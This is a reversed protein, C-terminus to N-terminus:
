GKSERVTNSEFVRHCAVMHGSGAFTECLEPKIARCESRAVPCRMHFPCGEPINIPSPIDGQLLIRNRKAGPDPIPIASFLAKTYPHLPNRYLEESSALEVIKGLYMVIIRQSMHKVVSLGHSIFLYAQGFQDQLDMLLNIIQSQTAVDLASVAEDCVVLQPALILARAIGIRQRQGGSFEHPYKKISSRPLGVAELADYVRKIKEAGRLGEQIFLPEGIVDGINMRPNLSSYPDQYIVSMQKRLSRLEKNNLASLKIGNFYVEGSTPELLRLILKGLTTKGCGSEGVIGLTEGKDIYLSVDDVAKVYTKQGLLGKGSAVYHKALHEAALLHNRLHIDKPVAPTNTHKLM